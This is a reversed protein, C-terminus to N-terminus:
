TGTQPLSITLARPCNGQISHLTERVCVCVIATIDQTNEMVLDVEWVWHASESGQHREKM